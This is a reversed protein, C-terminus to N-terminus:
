CASSFAAIVAGAALGPRVGGSAAVLAGTIMQVLMDGVNFFRGLSGAAYAGICYYLAQGFSLLGARLLLMLGLAVLGKAIAITLLFM